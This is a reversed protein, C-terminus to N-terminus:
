VPRAPMSWLHSSLRNPYDLATAVGIAGGTSHGLFAVREFVADDLISIVDASMQEVSAVPVHSSRGTGRQDFSLVTFHRALAPINRHWWSATGGLGAALVLPPGDGQIDWKLRCDDRETTPM